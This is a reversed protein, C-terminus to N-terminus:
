DHFNESQVESFVFGHAADEVCFSAIMLEERSGGLAVVQGGDEILVFDVQDDHFGAASLCTLM